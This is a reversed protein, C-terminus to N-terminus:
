LWLMTKDGKKDSKTPSSDLLEKQSRDDHAWSGGHLTRVNADMVLKESVTSKDPLYVPYDGQVRGRCEM